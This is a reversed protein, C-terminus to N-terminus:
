MDSESHSWVAMDLFTNLKSSFNQERHAVPIKMKAKSEALVNLIMRQAKVPDTSFISPIYTKHWQIKVDALVVKSLETLLANLKWRGSNIGDSRVKLYHNYISVKTPLSGQDLPAPVGLLGAM